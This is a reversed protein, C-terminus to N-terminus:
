RWPFRSTPSPFRGCRTRQFVTLHGVEPAIAPIIQVASAGTGIIGVAKGTMDYDHDWDTPRQVKGKFSKAGAIGVDERPRVFAGVASIVFRATIVSGDAAHLKWFSGTDDM